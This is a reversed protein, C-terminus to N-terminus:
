LARPEITRRAYPQPQRTRPKVPERREPQVSSSPAAKPLPALDPTLDASPAPQPTPFRWIGHDDIGLLPSAPIGQNWGGTSCGAAALAFFTLLLARVFM